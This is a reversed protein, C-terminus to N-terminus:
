AAKWGSSCEPSGAAAARSAAGCSREKCRHSQVVVTPPAVDVSNPADSPSGTESQEDSTASKAFEEPFEGAARVSTRTRRVMNRWGAEGLGVMPVTTLARVPATVGHYAVSALEKATASGGDQVLFDAVPEGDPPADDAESIQFEQEWPSFYLNRNPDIPVTQGAAILKGESVHLKWDRKMMYAESNFSTQSFEYFSTAWAAPASAIGRLLDSLPRVPTSSLTSWNYWKTLRGARVRTVDEGYSQRGGTPWIMYIPYMGDKEIQRYTSGASETVVSRKNLGGNFYFVLRLPRDSCSNTGNEGRCLRGDVEQNTWDQYKDIANKIVCKFQNRITVASSRLNVAEKCHKIDKEHESETLPYNAKEISVINDRNVEDGKGDPNVEIIHLALDRPDQASPQNYPLSIVPPQAACAALALVLSLGGIRCNRHAPIAQARCSESALPGRPTGCIRGQPRIRFENVM